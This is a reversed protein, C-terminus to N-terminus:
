QVGIVELRLTSNARARVVDRLSELVRWAGTVEGVGFKDYNDPIDGM